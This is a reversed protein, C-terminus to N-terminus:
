FHTLGTRCYLVTYKEIPVANGKVRVAKSRSSLPTSRIKDLKYYTAGSMLAQKTPTVVHTYEHEITM